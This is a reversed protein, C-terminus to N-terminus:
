LLKLYNEREFDKGNKKDCYIHRPLVGYSSFVYLQRAFNQEQASVRAYAYTNM